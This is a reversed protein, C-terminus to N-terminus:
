INRKCFNPCPLFTCIASKKQPKTEM